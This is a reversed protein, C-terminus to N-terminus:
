EPMDNILSDAEDVIREVESEYETVADDHESIATERDSVADEYATWEPGDLETEDGEPEAPEEPEVWDDDPNELGELESALGELEDAKESCGSARAELTQGTDGQQLGEPMNDFSGQAEEGLDRLASAADNIADVGRDSESWAEGIALFASKFPSNTLQSQKFPTLSRKEIGGRQLKLKTYFYTDGKKIGDRPYDKRATREVVRPM